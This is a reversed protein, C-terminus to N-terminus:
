LLIDKCKVGNCQWETKGDKSYLVIGTINKGNYYSDPHDSKCSVHYSSVKISKSSTQNYGANVGTVSNHYSANNGM